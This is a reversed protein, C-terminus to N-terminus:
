DNCRSPLPCDTCRSAVPQVTGPEFEPQRLIKRKEKCTSFLGSAWGAKEVIPLPIGERSYFVPPQRQDGVVM